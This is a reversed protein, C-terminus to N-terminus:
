GARRLQQHRRQCAQHQDNRREEGAPDAKARRKDGPHAFLLLCCITLPTNKKCLYVAFLMCRITLPTNKHSICMM